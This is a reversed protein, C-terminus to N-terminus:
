YSYGPTSHFYWKGGIKVVTATAESEEKDQEKSKSEVEITLKYAEKVKYDKKEYYEKLDDLEDGTIKEKDTIKAKVKLGKVEEKYEEDYEDQRIPNWYAYFESKEKTEKVATKYYNKVLSNMSSNKSCSNCGVFVLLIVVVLAVAAIVIKKIMAQKDEPNGGPAAAVSELSGGCEACFVMDDNAQAGCNPCKKM